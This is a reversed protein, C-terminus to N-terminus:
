GGRRSRRSGDGSLEAPGGPVTRPRQSMSESALEGRVEAPLLDVSELRLPLLRLTGILEKGACWVIRSDALLEPHTPVQELVRRVQVPAFPVRAPVQSTRVYGLQAARCAQPMEGEVDATLAPYATASEAWLRTM